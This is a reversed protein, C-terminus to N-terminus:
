PTTAGATNSYDSNSNTNYARVRYTYTTKTTLGTNDYQTKNSGVTAIQVFNTCSM